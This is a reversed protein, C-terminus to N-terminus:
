DEDAEESQEDESGEAILSLIKSSTAVGVGPISTFDGNLEAYKELSATTGLGAKKLAALAGPGLPLSEIPEGEAQCSVALNDAVQSEVSEIEKPLESFKVGAANIKGAKYALVVRDIAGCRKDWSALEQNAQEVCTAVLMEKEDPSSFKGGQTEFKRRITRIAQIKNQEIQIANPM